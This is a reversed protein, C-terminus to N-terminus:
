EIQADYTKLNDLTEYVADMFKQWKDADIEQQIYPEELWIKELLEVCDELDLIQEEITKETGTSIAIMIIVASVGIIVGLMTLLSRLKNRVLGQWAIKIVKTPKM